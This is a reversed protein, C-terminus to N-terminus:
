FAYRLGLDITRGYNQRLGVATTQDLFRNIDESKTINSVNLYIDLGEVPLSQKVSLDWRRFDDTSERLEPWFNTRTFIDSRYLMSVRASFGKYDYGMSLNMIQDPQDILRDVYLTDNNVAFVQLPPGFDIEFDIITRPYKVESSTITYNANFVLGSLFRPLYWFRTQYDFEFGRLKVNNPNNSIYNQISGKEIEPPLGFSEPDVIYRRGGPFVLDKINKEFYGASFFGIHNQNVSVNVDINKSVAPRLNPNKYNISHPNHLFLNKALGSHGTAPFAGDGRVARSNGMRGM